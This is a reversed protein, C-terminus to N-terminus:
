NLNTICFTKKIVRFYSKPSKNQDIPTESVCVKFCDDCQRQLKFNTNQPLTSEFSWTSSMWIGPLNGLLGEDIM